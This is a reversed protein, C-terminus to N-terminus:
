LRSKPRLPRRGGRRQSVIRLLHGDVTDLQTNPISLRGGLPTPQAFDGADIAHDPISLAGEWQRGKSTTSCTHRETMGYPLDVM